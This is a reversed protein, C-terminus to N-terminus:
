VADLSICKWIHDNWRHMIILIWLPLIKCHLLAYKNRMQTLIREDITWCRRSSLIQIRESIYRRVVGVLGKFKSQTPTTHVCAVDTAYLVNADVVTNSKQECSCAHTDYM